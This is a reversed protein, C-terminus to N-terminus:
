TATSTGLILVRWAPARLAANVDSSEGLIPDFWAQETDGSQNVYQVSIHEVPTGITRTGTAKVADLLDEVHKIGRTDVTASAMVGESTEFTVAVRLGLGECPAVDDLEAATSGVLRERDAGWHWRRDYSAAACARSLAPAVCALVVLVCVLGLASVALHRWRMRVQQSPPAEQQRWRADQGGATFPLLQPTVQVARMGSADLELLGVGTDVRRTVAGHFLPNSSLSGASCVQTEAIALLASSQRRAPSAVAFVWSGTGNCTVGAASGDHVTIEGCAAASQLTSDEGIHITVRFDFSKACCDGLLLRVFPKGHPQVLKVALWAPSDGPCARWVYDRLDELDEQDARGGPCVRITILIDRRM